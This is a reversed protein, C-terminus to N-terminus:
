VEKLSLAGQPCTNVCLSCGICRDGDVRQESVSFLYFPCREECLGCSACKGWDAQVRRAVKPWRLFPGNRAALAADRKQRARSLYCCDTCCNCITNENATHILGATDADRIVRMAQDKTVPRSVGRHAITNVGSRFSICTRLPKECGDYGGALVRCDCNTLYAQREETQVRSLAEERTLVADGSPRKQPDIDLRAYYASFYWDDLAAQTERPFARYREPEAVAFVDLMTYFGGLRFLGADEDAYDILGRRYLDDAQLGILRLDEADFLDKEIDAIRRQESLPVIRNLVPEAERPVHFRGCFKRDCLRPDPAQPGPSHSM